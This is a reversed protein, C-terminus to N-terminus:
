RWSPWVMGPQRGPGLRGFRPWIGPQLGVPGVRRRGPGHGYLQVHHDRYREEAEGDWWLFSSPGADNISCLGILGFDM